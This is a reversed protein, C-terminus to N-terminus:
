SIELSVIRERHPRIGRPLYQRENFLIAVLDFLKAPGSCGNQANVLVKLAFGDDRNGRCGFLEEERSGSHSLSQLVHHLKAHNTLRGAFLPMPEESIVAVQFNEVSAGFQGFRAASLM